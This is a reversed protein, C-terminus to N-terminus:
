KKEDKLKTPLEQHQKVKIFLHRLFNDSQNLTKKIKDINDSSIEIQFFKYFAKKFKLINYSLERLGWDEEDIIKGTNSTILDKFFKIEDNIVQSAAEPSLLIVVEFKNM